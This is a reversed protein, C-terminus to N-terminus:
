EKWNIEEIDYMYYLLKSVENENLQYTTPVISMWSYETMDIGEVNVTMKERAHYVSLTRGSNEEPFIQGIEIDTVDGLEKTLYEIAKEKNLGAVTVHGEGKNDTMFYKKAGFMKFSNGDDYETERDWLGITHRIGKIDQPSIEDETYGLSILYEKRVKNLKEFIDNHNDIFKCSDTDWYVRDDGLLMLANQLDYRAYASTWVGVEYALFHNRSSYVKDLCDQIENLNNYDINQRLKSWEKNDFDFTCEDNIPNTVCMGYVANVKAKSQMYEYEKGKVGKLTTKKQYLDIVFDRM